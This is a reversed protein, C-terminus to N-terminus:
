YEKCGCRKLGSSLNLFFFFPFESLLPKELQTRLTVLLLMRQDSLLLNRYSRKAGPLWIPVIPVALSWAVNQTSVPAADTPALSSAWQTRTVCGMFRIFCSSGRTLAPCWMPFLLCHLTLSTFLPSSGFVPLASAFVPLHLGLCQVRGRWYPNCFLLILQPRSYVLCEALLLPYTSAVLCFVQRVSLTGVLQHAAYHDSM